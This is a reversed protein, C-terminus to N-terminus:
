GAQGDIRPSVLMPTYVVVFGVFSMIWLIQSSALWLLYHGPAFIPVIVRLIAGAVLMILCYILAPPALHVNRGTHGLSVRAAMSFSIVGIGGFAFAHVSLFPSLGFYVSASYLPFALIIFGYGIFLSWLLPKRWIGRTHWGYARIGHLLFLIIAIFASLQKAAFFIDSIFFLLFLVMSSLDLWRRNDLKVEYGVGREVFFPIVRRGMTLILAIILYFGTYIGITMGNGLWGHLGAYFCLNALIMLALKSVIALQRWAKARMIPITVAITLFVGFAIDCCAMAINAYAGPWFPLIRALLWLTFIGLLPVGSATAMGTWNRVATLLFGAIIAMSYGFIMEHAHWAIGPLNIHIAQNFVLVLMWLLTSVAAFIAAGLFFPRFGLRFLAFRGQPQKSITLM